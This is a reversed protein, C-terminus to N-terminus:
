GGWGCPCRCRKLGEMPLAKEGPELPLRRDRFVHLESRGISIEDAIFQHQLLAMVDLNKVDIGESTAKVVDVQHGRIRGIEERDM